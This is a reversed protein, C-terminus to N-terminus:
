IIKDERLKIALNAGAEEATEGKVLYCRREWSPAVLETPELRELAELDLDIERQSWATIPKKMADKLQKLTMSRLDGVESSVTLLAPMRTKVEEYGGEVARKVVINEGEVRVEYALNICPIGLMEAVLLGVQGSNFDFAQRGTLILDYEGMKRIASALVSANSFSDLDGFKEDDLIILEDAGVALAKRLVTKSLNEGASLVTIKVGLQDKLRLALELANEDFPNIVPPTGSPVVRKSRMDIVFASPPGEPDPVQKACVIIKLEKM